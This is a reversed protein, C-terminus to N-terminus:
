YNKICLTLTYISEEVKSCISVIFTKYYKEGICTFFLVENLFTIEDNFMKLNNKNYWFTLTKIGAPWIFSLQLRMMIYYFSAKSCLMNLSLYRTHLLVRFVSQLSTPPALSKMEAMM